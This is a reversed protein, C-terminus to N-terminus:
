AELEEDDFQCRHADRLLVGSEARDIMRQLESNNSIFGLGLEEVTEEDLECRVFLGLEELLNPIIRYQSPVKEFVADVRDFDTEYALHFLEQIEPPPLEKLNCCIVIQERDESANAAALIADLFHQWTQQAPDLEITAIILKGSPTRQIHWSQGGSRELSAVGRCEGAYLNQITGGPGLEFAICCCIGLAENALRMEGDAEKKKAQQLRQKTATKSFEPYFNVRGSEDLSELTCVPIVLDADFLERCIYVPNGELSAAIYASGDEQDPQHQILNLEIGKAALSERVSKLSSEIETLGRAVVLNLQCAPLLNSLSQAVIAVTEHLSPVDNLFVLAISDGSFVIENFAPFNVPATLAGDLQTTFSFGPGSNVEFDSQPRSIKEIPIDLQSIMTESLPVCKFRFSL